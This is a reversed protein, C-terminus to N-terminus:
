VNPSEMYESLEEFKMNIDAERQLCLSLMSKLEEDNILRENHIIKLIGMMNHFERRLDHQINSGIDM